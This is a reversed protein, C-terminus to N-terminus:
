GGINLNEVHHIHINVTETDECPEPLHGHRELIELLIDLYGDHEREAANEAMFQLLWRYTQAPLSDWLTDFLKRGELQPNFSPAEANPHTKLFSIDPPNEGWGATIVVPERPESELPAFLRELETLTVDPLVRRLLDYLEKAEAQYDSSECDDFIVIAREAGIASSFHWAIPEM